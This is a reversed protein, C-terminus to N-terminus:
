KPKRGEWYHSIAICAAAALLVAAYQWELLCQSDLFHQLRELSAM